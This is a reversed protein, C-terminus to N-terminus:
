SSTSLAYQPDIDDPNDIIDIIMDDNLFLLKVGKFVRKAGAFKGYTVYDGVKFWQEYVRELISRDNALVPRMMDERTFALPGIALVKGVTTLYNIDDRVADPLILGGKTKERIKVPRVVIQWYLPRLGTPDPISEDSIWDDNKKSLTGHESRM